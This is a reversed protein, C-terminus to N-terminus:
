KGAELKNHWGDHDVQGGIGHVVAGCESCSWLDAVTAAAVAYYRRDGVTPSGRRPLRGM